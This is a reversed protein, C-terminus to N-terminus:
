AVQSILNRLAEKEEDVLWIALGIQRIRHDPPEEVFARRASLKMGAHGDVTVDVTIPRKDLRAWFDQFARLDAPDGGDPELMVGSLTLNTMRCPISEGSPEIVRVPLRAATKLRTGVSAREVQVAAMRAVDNVRAVRIPRAVHALITCGELAQAGERHIVIVPLKPQGAQFERVFKGEEGLGNGVDVFLIDFLGTAMKTSADELTTAISVGFRQGLLISKVLWCSCQERDVVLVNTAPGRKPESKKWRERTGILRRMPSPGCLEPRLVEGAPRQRVPLVAPASPLRFECTPERDVHAGAHRAHDPAVIEIAPEPADTPEATELSALLAHLSAVAPEPEPRPAPELDVALAIELEAEEGAPLSLLASGIPTSEPRFAPGAEADVGPGAAPNQEEPAPAPFEQSKVIPDAPAPPTFESGMGRLRRRLREFLSM